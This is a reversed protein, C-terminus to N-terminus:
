WTVSSSTILNTRWDGSLCHSRSGIGVENSFCHTCTRAGIMVVIALRKKSVPLKGELKLWASTIGNNLVLFGEWVVPWNGVQWKQRFTYDLIPDRVIQSCVWHEFHSPIPRYAMGGSRWAAFFWVTVEGVPFLMGPHKKHMGPHMYKACNVNWVRRRTHIYQSHLCLSCTLQLVLPTLNM